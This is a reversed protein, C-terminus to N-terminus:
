LLQLANLAKVLVEAEKTIMEILDRTTRLTERILFVKCDWGEGKDIGGDERRAVKDKSLRHEKCDKYFVMQCIKNNDLYSAVIHEETPNLFHGI